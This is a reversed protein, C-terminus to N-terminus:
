GGFVRRTLARWRNRLRRGFSEKPPAATEGAPLPAQAVVAEQPPAECSQEGASRVVNTLFAYSRRHRLGDKKELCISFGPYKTEATDKGRQAALEVDQIIVPAFGRINREIYATEYRHRRLSWIFVRFSDFDYPYVGDAITTWLWNRKKQDGDAVEGLSFYSVIRRGEAYQAVEDPIAMALRRTLVWGSQGNSSRILSWDDTAVPKDNKEPKEDKAPAEEALPEEEPESKSLDLWDAPPGPPKPIAALPPYKVEKPPKKEVAKKPPPPPLLPKRPLDTRPSTVHELVDFKEGEKVQLFSPSQRSPQSHVNLIGFATAQGQVPMKAARAALDKLRQMDEAALLQREDTWGEAGSSTRVRFFRRRRQILDLRDGHKVTAVVASQLPIDRRIKLEAPGVYAEGIPALRPEPSTQCAALFVLAAAVSVKTISGEFV